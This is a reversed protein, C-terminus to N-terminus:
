LRSGRHRSRSLHKLLVFDGTMLAQKKAHTWRKLQRERAHASNLSQHPEVWEIRLIPHRCTFLAHRGEQHEALLAAQRQHSIGVYFRGDTLRAIYVYWM